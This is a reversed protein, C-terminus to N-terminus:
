RRRHIAFRDGSAAQKFRMTGVATQRYGWYNLHSWLGAASLDLVWRGSDHTMTNLRANDATIIDRYGYAFRLVPELRAIEDYQRRVM